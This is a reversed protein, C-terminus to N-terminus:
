KYTEYKLEHLICYTELEKTHIFCFRETRQETSFIVWIRPLSDIRNYGYLLESQQNLKYINRIHNIGTYKM